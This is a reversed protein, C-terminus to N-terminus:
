KSYAYMVNSNLIYFLFFFCVIIYHEDMIICSQNANNYYEGLITIIEMQQKWLETIQQWFVHLFGM